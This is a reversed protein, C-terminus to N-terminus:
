PEVEVSYRVEADSIEHNGGTTLVPVRAALPEM